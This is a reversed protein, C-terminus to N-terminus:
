IQKEQLACCGYGDPKRRNWLDWVEGTLEHLEERNLSHATLLINKVRFGAEGLVKMRHSEEMEEELRKESEGMMTDMSVGYLCSLRWFAVVTPMSKGTEYYTYSSRDLELMDALQKQTLGARVRLIRLAEHLNMMM